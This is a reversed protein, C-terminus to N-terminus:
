RHNGGRLLIRGRLQSSRAERVEKSLDTTVASDHDGEWYRVETIVVAVLEHNNM